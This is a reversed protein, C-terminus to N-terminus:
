SSVTTTLVVGGSGGFGCEVILNSRDLTGGGLQLVGQDRVRLNADNANTTGATYEAGAGNAEFRTGTGLNLSTVAGPMAATYTVDTGVGDIFM